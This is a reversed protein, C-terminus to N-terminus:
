ERTLQRFIVELDQQKEFMCLIVIGRSVAFRFLEPRIDMGQVATVLWGSNDATVEYV